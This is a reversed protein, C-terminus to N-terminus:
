ILPMGLALRGIWMKLMETTPSMVHSARADRLCRALDSNERYSIGGCCTMGDNAVKVAAESASAKAMMITIMAEADGMDGMYAARYLLSRAQSVAISMEAVHSQLATLDSLSSGSHAHQRGMLHCITHNLAAQAVGVYAGAMAVLFYPTVVEFVYWIQDGEEGLLNKAPMRVNKLEMGRSSNGRMGFGRWPDLWRIGDADPDLVLCNFDGAEAGEESVRTSIVYSDVKGGNTVFQKTGNVLYEAGDLTLETQPLYFHSGTGSESLALTTIHRNEAIPKLYREEHYPTAKAAIVASGVCHMAYCLSSSACSSAITEGLVALALLGQEHGGLRKPVHLGLLGADALARMSEEPWRAESDVRAANPAIVSEAVERVMSRLKLISQPILEDM